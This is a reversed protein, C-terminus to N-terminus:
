FASIMKLPDSSLLVGGFGRKFDLVGKGRRLNVGGFDYYKDQRDIATEIMKYTLLKRDYGRNNPITVDARLFELFYSGSSLGIMYGHIEGSKESKLGLFNLDTNSSNQCLNFLNLLFTKTCIPSFGNNICLQKYHIFFDEIDKELMPKIQFGADVARKIHKKTTKNFRNQIQEMTEEDLNLVYTYFRKFRSSLGYERVIDKESLYRFSYSLLGLLSNNRLFRGLQRRVVAGDGYYPIGYPTWGCRLMGLRRLYIPVDCSANSEELTFRHVVEGDMEKAQAWETTHLPMHKLV